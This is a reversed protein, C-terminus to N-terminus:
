KRLTGEASGQYENLFDEATKRMSLSVREADPSFTFYADFNGFYDSMLQVKMRLTSENVWSASAACRYPITGPVSGVDNSYGAQPFIGFRNARFGFAFNKGGQANEYSFVGGDADFDFRFWSIGMPNDSLTYVKGDIKALLGDAPAADEWAACLKMSSAFDSLSKQAEPAEPLVDGASQAVIEFFNRIICEGAASNGQNDGNYVLILDREPICVAFQCGMGNFYFGKGWTKWFYYGYGQEDAKGSLSPASGGPATSILNSTADRVYDASLLQEGDWSGGNLVFRATLLLDRPPMLCASDGWSHGGPCHLCHADKSVDIKDFLKLRLYDMFEMHTLREVLAGLVFSGSSDYEFAAGPIRTRKDPNQFYQRVRDDSRNVFWNMAPKGTSMMLMNRVTQHRLHEDEQGELEKAFFKEMPDDLSLLGDDLAFGVALSVFSKSVSYMRHTQEKTFPPVYTEFILDNGRMILIDHTVLHNDELLRLYEEIKASPIGASEPSATRISM